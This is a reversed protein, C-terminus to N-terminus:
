KDLIGQAKEILVELDLGKCGDLNTPYQGFENRYALLLETDRKLESREEPTSKGDPVASFWYSIRRIAISSDRRQLHKFVCEGSCYSYREVGFCTDWSLTCPCNCIYCNVITKIKPWGRLNTFRGDYYRNIQTIKKKTAASYPM